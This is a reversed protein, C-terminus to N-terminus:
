KETVQDPMSMAECRGEHINRCLCQILIVAPIGCDAVSLNTWFLYIVYKESDRSSYSFFEFDTYKQQL